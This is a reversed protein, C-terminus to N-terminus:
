TYILAVSAAVIGAAATKELEASRAEAAVAGRLVVTPAYFPVAAIAAGVPYFSVHHGAVRRQWYAKRGAEYTPPYDDLYFDGHRLISLPLYRAPLTDGSGITRGNATYAILALTFVLTAEWLRDRRLPGSMSRDGSTQEPRSASRVSCSAARAARCAPSSTSASPGHM